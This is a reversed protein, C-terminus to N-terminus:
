TFALAMSTRESKSWIQPQNEEDQRTFFISPTPKSTPPPGTPCQNRCGKCPMTPPFGVDRATVRATSFFGWTAARWRGLVERGRLNNCGGRCRFIAWSAIADIALYTQRHMGSDGWWQHGTTYGLERPKEDRRAAATAVEFKDRNLM